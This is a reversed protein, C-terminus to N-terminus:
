DAVGFNGDVRPASWRAAAAWYGIYTAAYGALLPFGVIRPSQLAAVLMALTLAVKVFWGSFFSWAVRQASVGPGHRLMAFAMFTTAAIGIGAGVLASVGARSGWGALGVTTVAM